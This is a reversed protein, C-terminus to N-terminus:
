VATLFLYSKIVADFTKESINNQLAIVKFNKKWKQFELNEDSFAPIFNSVLFILILKFLSAVM